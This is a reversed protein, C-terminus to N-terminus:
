VSCRALLSRVDQRKIPKTLFTNMGSAFAEQQADASDLGTIATITAPYWPPRSEPNADFYEREFQRIKQSAEFGDMVPMSIDLIVLVFKGPEAKFKEVAELGNTATTCNWGEKTVYAVLINLNIPNDEVLLVSPRSTDADREPVVEEASVLEPASTPPPARQEPLANFDDSDLTKIRESTPRKSIKMREAPPDRPGIDLPLHASEPLEVWRTQENQNPDQGDLRQICLGLTKALKRPGCPQSIFEVISDRSQNATMARAFMNHAAEPSQCIVILPSIRPMHDLDLSQNGEADSDDLDTHVMLYFDCPDARDHLSAKRVTLHFWDECVRKLSNYLTVDRESTLTSGFGLLGITKGDAQKRVLNYSANSSSGDSEDAASAVKLPVEISIETGQGRESSVQITGRLSALAKRVISLGLGSGPALADEQSFPTFLGNRLFEAGIGQGSDRVTLTVVRETDRDTSETFDHSGRRPSETSKLGLYVYGQHTYKLANTFVNMLIRRWCGAQTFFKWEAAEQIDFIITVQKPPAESPQQPRLNNYFSHGAFVSEVVEELICDLQVDEYTNNSSSLPSRKIKQRGGKTGAPRKTHHSHRHKGKRDKRFKDLYTLDLLHTITDLLTRGCSEITHVMGQQLANMATDSLIDATGLIGHLPSRLEHSISSVLNTKAREAVEVDLRHVEAMVSNGFARLFALENESTFVREPTKTWALLGSLWRSKHSDWLPLFIIGRAGGLVANLDDADRTHSRRRRSKSGKSGLTKTSTASGPSNSNSDDSLSGSATYNFIKGQPYRNVIAKLLTERVAYEQGPQLDAGSDGNITSSLTTSAGLTRCITTDDENSARPCTPLSLPGPPSSSESASASSGSDSSDENSSRESRAEYGVLGGFSGIRADLFAVGEVEISERILNAARSFIKQLAVPVGDDPIKDGSVSTRFTAQTEQSTNTEGSERRDAEEMSPRHPLRLLVNNEAEQIDQQQINLKGEATEGTRNAVADQENAELWSDRLTSRGEVFSGLGFIMKKAQNNQRKSQLTELHDMITAAMHKMFDLAPGGLGSRRPQPDFVCYAGITHGRLAVIPVGACFRAGFHEYITEYEKVRRREYIDAVVLASGGVIAPDDSPRSLPLGAVSTCVGNENSMVCCGLRLKDRGDLCSSGTGEALIYQHTPGFLSIIARESGLRLAGLQAFSTLANDRSPIPVFTKRSAEDFPAFPYESHGPPLYRYFEREKALSSPPRKTPLIREESAM